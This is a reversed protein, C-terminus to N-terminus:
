KNFNRKDSIEKDRRVQERHRIAVVRRDSWGYVEKLYEAPCCIICLQLNKWYKGKKSNSRVVYGCDLCRVM